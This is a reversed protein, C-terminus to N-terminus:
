AKEFYRCLSANFNGDIWYPKAYGACKGLGEGDDAYLKCHACKPLTEFEPCLPADILVIADSWRCLGKAVDLLAFNKCDSHNPVSKIM